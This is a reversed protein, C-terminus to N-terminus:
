PTENQICRNLNTVSSQLGDNCGVLMAIILSLKPPLLTVLQFIYLIRILMTTEVFSIKRFYVSAIFMM